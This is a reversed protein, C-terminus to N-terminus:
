ALLLAEAVMKVLNKDKEKKFSNEHRKQTNHEQDWKGVVSHNQQPIQM